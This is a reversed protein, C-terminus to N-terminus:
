KILRVEHFAGEVWQWGELLLYEGQGDVELRTVCIAPDTLWVEKLWDFAAYYRQGNSGDWVTSVVASTPDGWARTIKLDTLVEGDSTNLPPLRHAVEGLHTTM